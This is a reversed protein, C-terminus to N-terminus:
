VCYCYPRLYPFENIICHPQNGYLNIRSINPDVIIKKDPLVEANAEFTGSSPLVVFVVEYFKKSKVATDYVIGCSDCEQNKSTKVYQIVDNKPTKLGALLINGLTLNSCLKASDKNKNILSNIYRVTEHAVMLVIKDTIPVNKYNLCPCWHDEVGSNNCTRVAPDIKTFLSQGIFKKKPLDPYSLIHHLSAYIDFHNTLVNSNKKLAIFMKPYKVNFDPPLTISFFPMRQELKGQLTTRFPGIRAGHDGFIVLITHNIRVPSKFYNIIELIDDDIVQLGNFDNHAIASNIILSVKPLDEFTETFTKLMINNYEVDCKHSPKKALWFPRIYWSTPLTNFGNLRYHFAGWEPNDESFMTLYGAKHFDNFIFNFQDCTSANDVSRRAEPLYKERDGVLIALLQATTGDGVVTHGNLLITNEDNLLKPMTKKLHRHFNANSQSDIMLFVVDLGLGHVDKRKMSVKRLLEQSRTSIHAHFEVHHFKEFYIEVKIFDNSLKHKYTGNKNRKVITPESFKVGFDENIFKKSPNDRYIYSISLNLVNSSSLVFWGDITVKGFRRESCTMRVPKVYRMIEPDFPNLSPLICANSDGHELRQPIKANLNMRQLRETSKTINKKLIFVWDIYIFNIFTSIFVIVILAFTFVILRQLRM